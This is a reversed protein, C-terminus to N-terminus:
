LSQLKDSIDDQLISKVIDKVDDNVKMIPRYPMISRPETSQHYIAYPATNTVSVSDIGSEYDFSRKMNGSAELIGRGPYFKAKRKAYVPSLSPWVIGFVGGQSAYGPGAYYKVVSDGINRMASDFNRLRQGLNNLRRVEEPLGTIKITVAMGSM